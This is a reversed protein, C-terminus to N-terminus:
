GVAGAAMESAKARVLGVLARLAVGSPCRGELRVLVDEDLEEVMPAAVDFDPLSRSAAMVFTMMGPYAGRSGAIRAGEGDDCRGCAICRAFSALGAQEVPALPLLRDPAFNSRVRALGHGGLGLMRRALTAVLSFALLWAAHVRPPLLKGM